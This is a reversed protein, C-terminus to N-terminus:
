NRLREIRGIRRDLCWVEVDCDSAFPRARELAEADSEADVAKFSIVRNNGDILYARYTPMVSERRDPVVRRFAASPVSLWAPVSHFRFRDRRLM